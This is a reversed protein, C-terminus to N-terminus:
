NTSYVPLKKGSKHCTAIIASQKASLDDETENKIARLAEDTNKLAKAPWIGFPDTTRDVGPFSRRRLTWRRRRGDSPWKWPCCSSGNQGPPLQGEHYEDDFDQNPRYYDKVTVKTM